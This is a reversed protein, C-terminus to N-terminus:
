RSMLSKDDLSISMSEELQVNTELNFLISSQFQVASLVARKQAM